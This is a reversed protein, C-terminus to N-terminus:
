SSREPLTINTYLLNLLRMLMGLETRELPGKKMAKKEATTRFKVKLGLVCQELVDQLVQVEVHEGALFLRVEIPLRGNEVRVQQLDQYATGRRPSSCRHKLFQRCELRVEYREM